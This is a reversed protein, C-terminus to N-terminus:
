FPLDMDDDEDAPPLDEIGDQVEEQKRESAPSLFEVNNAVVEAVTRKNGDKDEYSRIQLSGEVAVLKGKSLYRCCTDALTRWAVVNIFDTQKDGNADKYRRDVAVTMRAVSVGSSTVLLEPSRTLRGILTIRNM